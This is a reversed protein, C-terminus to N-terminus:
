KFVTWSKEPHEPCRVFCRYITGDYDPFFDVSLTFEGNLGALMSEDGHQLDHLQSPSLSRLRNALEPDM